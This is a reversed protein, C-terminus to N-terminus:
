RPDEHRGFHIFGVVSGKGFRGDSLIACEVGAGKEMGFWWGSCRRGWKLVGEIAGKKGEGAVAQREREIM